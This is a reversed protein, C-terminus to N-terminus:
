IARGLDSAVKRALTSEMEMGGGKEQTLRGADDGSRFVSMLLIATWKNMDLASVRETALGLDM